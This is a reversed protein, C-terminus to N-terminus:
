DELQASSDLSPRHFTPGKLDSHPCHGHLGLAANCNWCLVRYKDAPLGERKAARWISLPGTAKQYERRGGGKIHDLCLFIVETEGCCACRGGLTEIIEWRLKRNRETTATNRKTKHKQHSRRDAERIRAKADPDGTYKKKMTANYCPRCMGKAAGKRTDGPYRPSIEPRDMALGCVSCNDSPNTSM